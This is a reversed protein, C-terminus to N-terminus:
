SSRAKKWTARVRDQVRRLRVNADKFSVAPFSLKLAAAGETGLKAITESRWGVFQLLAAIVIMLAGAGVWRLADMPIIKTTSLAALRPPASDLPIGGQPLSYPLREKYTGWKFPEATDLNPLAMSGPLSIGGFSIGGGFSRATDKVDRTSAAGDRGYVRPDGGGVAGRGVAGHGAPKEVPPEDVTISVPGSPDSPHGGSMVPSSRLAVLRYQYSGPAAEYAYSTSSTETLTSWTAGDFVEIRYGSIDSEPNPSWTMSVTQQKVSVSLNTPVQPANDVKVNLHSSATGGGNSTVDVKIQYWGNRLGGTSWSYAVDVNQRIDSPAKSAVESGEISLVIKRVGATASGTATVNQTGVIVAGDGPSTVKASVSTQASAPSVIALVLLCAAALTFLKRM